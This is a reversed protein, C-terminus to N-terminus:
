IKLFWKDKNLPLPKFHLTHSRCYKNISLRLLKKIDIPHSQIIKNIIAFYVKVIKFYCAFTSLAFPNIVQFDCPSSGIVNIVFICDNIITEKKKWSFNRTIIPINQINKRLHRGGAYPLLDKWNVMSKHNIM